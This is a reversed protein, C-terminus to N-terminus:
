RRDETGIARELAAKEALRAIDARTGFAKTIREELRLVDAHAADAAARDQADLVHVFLTRTAYGVEVVVSGPIVSVTIATATLLLDSETRLPVAIVSSRVTRRVAFVAAVVRASSVVLDVAFYALFVLFGWPRLRLGSDLAPLPFVWVILLSVALGSALVAPSAAGYLLVWVVLMGAVAPLQIVRRGVTFSLPPRELGNPRSM